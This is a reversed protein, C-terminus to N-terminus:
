AETTFNEVDAFSRSSASVVALRTADVRLAMWASPPTWIVAVFFSPTCMQAVSMSMPRRRGSSPATAVSPVTTSGARSSSSTALDSDPM